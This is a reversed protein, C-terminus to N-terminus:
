NNRCLCVGKRRDEVKPNKYYMELEQEEPKGVKESTLWHRPNDNLEVMKFIADLLSDRLRVLIKYHFNFANKKEKIKPM